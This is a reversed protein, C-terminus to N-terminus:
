EIFCGRVSRNEPRIKEMKPDSGYQATDELSKDVSRWFMGIWWRGLPNGHFIRALWEGEWRFEKFSFRKPIEYCCPTLYSLLRTSAAKDSAVTEGNPLTSTPPVMWSPGAGRDRIIWHVKIPYKQTSALRLRPDNRHLTAFFHVLDFSSKAGGYIAVAKLQPYAASKRSQSFGSRKPVKLPQYGLHERAWCGIDKAHIVPAPSETNSSCKMDPINPVSTLGTALILKDCFITIRQTSTPTFKTINLKWQKNNL